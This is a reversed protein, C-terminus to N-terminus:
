PERMLELASQCLDGSPRKAMIAAADRRADASRAQAARIQASARASAAEAERKLAEISANQGSIAAQLNSVSAHCSQLDRQSATAESQWTKRTSPDILAARATSLDAKAHHLRATQVAGFTLLGAAALVRWYRAVFLLIATM